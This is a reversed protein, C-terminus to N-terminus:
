DRLLSSVVRSVMSMSLGSDVRKRTKPLNLLKRGDKSLENM